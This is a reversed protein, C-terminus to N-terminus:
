CRGGKSDYHVRAPCELVNLRGTRGLYMMICKDANGRAQIASLLNNFSTMEDTIMDNIFSMANANFETNIEIGEIECTKRPREVYRHGYEATHFEHLKEAAEESLGTYECVAKLDTDNTKIDTLGLLYDTSVNYGRAINALANIDPKTKGSLWNGVNQRSTHVIQAIEEHTAKEGVLKIFREQFTSSKANDM